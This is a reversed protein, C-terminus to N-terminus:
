EEARESVSSTATLKYMMETGDSASRALGNECSSSTNASMGRNETPNTANPTNVNKKTIRLILRHTVHINVFDLRLRFM